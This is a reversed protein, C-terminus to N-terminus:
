VRDAVGIAVAATTRLSEHVRCFNYHMVYLAVAAAHQEIRKSFDLGLRSFRKRSQRLTLHSCNSLRSTLCALKWPPPAACGGCCVPWGFCWNESLPLSLTTTPL